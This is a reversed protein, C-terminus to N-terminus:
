SHICSKTYKNWLTKLCPLGFAIVLVESWICGTMKYWFWVAVDSQALPCFHGVWTTYCVCQVVVGRGVTKYTGGGSYIANSTPDPYVLVCVHM